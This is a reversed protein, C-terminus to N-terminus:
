PIFTKPKLNLNSIRAYIERFTDITKSLFKGIIDVSKSLELKPRM